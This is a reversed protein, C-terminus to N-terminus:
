CSESKRKLEDIFKLGMDIYSNLRDLISEDIEMDHFTFNASDCVRHPETHNLLWDHRRNLTKLQSDQVSLLIQQANAVSSYGIIKNNLDAVVQKAKEIGAKMGQCFADELIEEYDDSM